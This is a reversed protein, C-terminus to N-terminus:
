DVQFRLPAHLTGGAAVRNKGVRPAEPNPFLPTLTGDPQLDVVTVWATASGRNKLEVQFLQGARLVLRGGPTRAPHLLDRTGVPQGGPQTQAEIPIVRPAVEVRSREPNQAVRLLLRRRWEGILLRRL